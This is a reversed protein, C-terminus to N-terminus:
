APLNQFRMRAWRARVLLEMEFLQGRSVVHPILRRAVDARLASVQAGISIESHGAVVPAVLPLLATLDNDIDFDMCAVVRADSTLWAAALARGRSQENIQLVRLRPLETALQMAIAVTADSSARDAITIRASFPLTDRLFAHLRRVRAALTRQQDRVVVVVDVAPRPGVQAARRPPLPVVVRARFDDSESPMVRYSM